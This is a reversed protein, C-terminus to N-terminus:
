KGGLKYHQLFKSCTDEISISMIAVVNDYNDLNSIPTTSSYEYDCTGKVVKDLEQFTFYKDRISSDLKLWAKPEIYTKGQFDSNLPISITTENTISLLGKGDQKITATSVKHDHWETGFKNLGGKSIITKKYAEKGTTKDMYKNYLTIDANTLM